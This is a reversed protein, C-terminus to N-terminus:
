CLTLQVMLFLIVNFQYRTARGNVEVFFSAVADFSEVMGEYHAATWTLSIPM